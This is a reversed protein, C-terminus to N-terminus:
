RGPKAGRPPRAYVVRRPDRRARDFIPKMVTNSRFVFHLLRQRYAEFDEIPRTAVGSDMAARAVAPALEVLLRPDFPKPILYDPGFSLDEGGYAQSVQEDAEAHALDALAHVCAMKMEENIVTAGVDLAGRFLFPFCLVNNVQNPYDSRGTAIIADPIVEKVLEPRIEPNPNSLAMIIPRGAMTKVMEQTLVDAVSVGLFIDKGAVADALSRAKTKRAYSAKPQNGLGERETHVVGTSDVLVINKRPMGLSVLLNLCAISAAGAGSAVLKVQGLKKGIVRLGNLVAAAVIIATGHQDDHMVPINMREKLLEEVEFCEPAKIDELNIGGFTPELSAIIDVLRAPDREEIEIDFVNIGAFKKFLGAKGEMVPKAAQPGIAGLGLVATGNTVVGVLNGRATLSYSELPDEAIAECAFAVGPSYALSLDHQNAMPKTVVVAIKGPIPDRHYDLSLDKLTGSIPADDM